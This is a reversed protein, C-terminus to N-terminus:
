FSLYKAQNCILGNKVVMALNFRCIDLKIVFSVVKQTCVALAVLNKFLITANAKRLKYKFTASFIRRRYDPVPAPLQMM